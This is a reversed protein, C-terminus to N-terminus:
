GYAVAIFEEQAAIQAQIQKRATSLHWKSTGTSINLQEGIERHTFGDIAYLNFVVKSMPSVKDIMERLNELSLNSMADNYVKNTAYAHDFSMLERYNKSSRLFDLACNIVIRRAWNEFSCNKDYLHLKSFIKLFGNNLIEVADDQNKVYRKCVALLKGFLLEYLEKQARRDNQECRIVLESIM